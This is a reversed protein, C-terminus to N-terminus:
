EDGGGEKPQKYHECGNSFDSFAVPANDGGWWRKAEAEDDPGFHRSCQQNTCDSGCYTMDNFCMM